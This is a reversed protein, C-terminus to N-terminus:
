LTTVRIVDWDTDFIENEDGLPTARVRVEVNGTQTVYNNALSTIQVTNSSDVTNIFFTGKTEFLNTNQNRVQVEVFALPNNSKGKLFITMFTAPSVATNGTLSMSLQIDSDNASTFTRTKLRLGDDEYLNAVTGSLTSGITYTPPNLIARGLDTVTQRIWQEYSQLMAAGGFGGWDMARTVGTGQFYGVIGGVGVQRDRGNEFVTWPCGSDYTWMGGEDSGVATGGMINVTSQGLPDDLDYILYDSTKFVGGGFDITTNPLYYDLANRSQRLVGQSNDVLAWGTATRNGTWGYGQLKLIAGALPTQGGPPTGPFVNFKMPLATQVPTSVRRLSIDATPHNVTQVITYIQGNQEFRDGGVHWATVIWTPSIAAGTGQTNVNPGSMFGMKGVGPFSTITLNPVIAGASAAALACLAIVTGKM